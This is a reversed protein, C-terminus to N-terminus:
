SRRVVQECSDAIEDDRDGRRKVVTDRGAGCRVVDRGGSRIDIRDDGARSVITDFGRRALISDGRSRGVIRGGRGQPCETAFAASVCVSVPASDLAGASAARLRVQAAAAVSVTAVGNADTSAPGDGGSVSAGAVPSETCVTVQANADYTCEQQTVTAEFSGPAVAPAAEIRLEPAPPFTAIFWTVDDGSRVEYADGGVDLDRGNVKVAWYQSSSPEAGGIGCIGLGFGFEDTVSLPRLEDEYRSASALAGFATAGPVRVTEGSGGAGGFFCLADPDSRVAEAGTVYSSGEVLAGDEGLVRLDVVKDRASATCALALSALVTLTLTAGLRRTTICPM